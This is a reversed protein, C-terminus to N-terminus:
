ELGRYRYAAVARRQWTKDYGTEVVKGVDGRAHIITPNGDLEARIAMHQDHLTYRFLIVDGPQSYEYVQSWGDAVQVMHENLLDRITMGDPIRGYDTIDFDSLGLAKAVMIVLGACDVGAGKVRAQHHFKTGIWTRAEAVVDEATMSSKAGAVLAAQGPWTPHGCGAPGM